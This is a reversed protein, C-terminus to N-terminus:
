AKQDPVSGDLVKRQDVAPAITKRNVNPTAPYFVVLKM